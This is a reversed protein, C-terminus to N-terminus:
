ETSVVEYGLEKAAGLALETKDKASLAKLQESFQSMTEDSKRFYNVLVTAEGVEKGDNNKFKAPMQKEKVIALWLLSAHGVSHGSNAPFGEWGVRRETSEDGANTQVKVQYCVEAAFTCQITAMKCTGSDQKAPHKVLVRLPSLTASTPPTPHSSLTM